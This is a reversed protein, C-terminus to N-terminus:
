PSVGATAADASQYSMTALTYNREQGREFWTVKLQVETTSYDRPASQYSWQYEPHGDEAFDGSMGSASTVGTTLLDNLKTEALSAAQSAHKANSAAAMALSVGRMAVPLVIALLVMTALVEILTFGSRVPQRMIPKM